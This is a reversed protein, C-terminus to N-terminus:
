PSEEPGSRAVSLVDVRKAGAEKLVRAVASCTAGTTVVDDVLLVSAGRYSVSTGPRLGFAQAVNAQRAARDLGVQAGVKVRRELDRSVPLRAQAALPRALLWAQNFGREQQRDRHLPIPALCDYSTLDLSRRAEELLLSGLFPVLRQQGQYKLRQLLDKLEGQYPGWARARDFAPPHDLCLMCERGRESSIGVGCRDCRPGTFPRLRGECSSCLRERRQAPLPAECGPCTPPVFLGVVADALDKLRDGSM